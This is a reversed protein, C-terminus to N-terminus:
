SMANQSGGYSDLCSSQIMRSHCSFRNERMRATSCATDCMMAGPCEVIVEPSMRKVM